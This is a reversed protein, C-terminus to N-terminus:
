GSCYVYHLKLWWRIKSVYFGSHDDNFTFIQLLGKRQDRGCMWIQTYPDFMKNAEEEEAIKKRLRGRRGSSRSRHQQSDRHTRNTGTQRSPLFQYVDEDEATIKRGKSDEICISELSCSPMMNPVILDIGGDGYEEVLSDLNGIEGLKENQLDEFQVLGNFVHETDKNFIDLVEKSDDSEYEPKIRCVCACSISKVEDLSIEVRLREFESSKVWSVVQSMKPRADPDQSWCLFMLEQLLLISRTEKVELIPRRGDRVENNRKVPPQINEFPTRQTLVEFLVMGYAFVDVQYCSDHM